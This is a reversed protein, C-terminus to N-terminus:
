YKPGFLDIKLKKVLKQMFLKIDLCTKRKTVSDAVYFMM